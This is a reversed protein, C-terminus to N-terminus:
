PITFIGSLKYGDKTYLFYFTHQGGEHGQTLENAKTTTVLV